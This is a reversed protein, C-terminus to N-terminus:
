INIEQPSQGEFMMVAESDSGGNELLRRVVLVVDDPLEQVVWGHGYKYPEGNYRRGTTLGTFNVEYLGREKLMECARAYDYSHGDKLWEKVAREQEPTGARMGNLHYDKWLHYLVSFTNPDSLQHKYRAITDLCQGGCVIDTHSPNWINGCISLELYAPTKGTITKQKTLPDIIFKDKGGCEYLEVDITVLNSRRSSTYAIKGLHFTKEM